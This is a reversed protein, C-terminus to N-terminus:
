IVGLQALLEDGLLTGHPDEACLRFAAFGAAGVSHEFQALISNGFDDMIAM